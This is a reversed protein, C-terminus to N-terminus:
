YNNIKEVKMLFYAGQWTKWYFIYGENIQVKTPLLWLFPYQWWRIKSRDIDKKSFIYNYFFPNLQKM